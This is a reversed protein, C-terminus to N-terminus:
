VLDANAAGHVDGHLHVPFVLHRAEDAPAAREVRVVVRILDEARAFTRVVRGVGVFFDIFGEGFGAARKIRVLATLIVRLKLFREGFVRGVREDAIDICVVDYVLFDVTDRFVGNQAM